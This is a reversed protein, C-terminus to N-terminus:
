IIDNTDIKLEPTTGGSFIYVGKLNKLNLNEILEAEFAKPKITRTGAPAFVVNRMTLNLAKVPRKSTSIRQFVMLQETSNRFTNGLGYFVNGKSTEKVWTVITKYVYPTDVIADFMENLISNCTWIFVYKADINNLIWNLDKVNDNWLTYTLQGKFVAPPTNRFKWPPDLIVYEYDRGHEKIFDMYDQKFHM